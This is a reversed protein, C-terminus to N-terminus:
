DNDQLGLLGPLAFPMIRSALLNSENQRAPDFAAFRSRINEPRNTVRIGKEADYITDLNPIEKGEKRAQRKDRVTVGKKQLLPMIIDGFNEALDPNDATFVGPMYQSRPNAMSLDFADFNNFTGHYVPADFGMAKARDMPTNNPPLGLMEVANRQAIRLAEEQPGLLGRLGATPKTMGVGLLGGINASNLVTGTPDQQFNERLQSVGQEISGPIDQVNRAVNRKLRDIMAYIEGISAM